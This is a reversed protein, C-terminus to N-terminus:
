QQPYVTDAPAAVLMPRYAKGQKLSVARYWDEFATSDVAVLKTYMNSHRLGCYEACTIDYSKVQPTRFWLVNERNPIV